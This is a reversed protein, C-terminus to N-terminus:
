AERRTIGRRALGAVIRDVAADVEKEELTRDAARFTLSFGLGVHGSPIHKGRYHDFLELSVLSPGGEDRVWGRVEDQTVGMPVVLALDRRVAPFRSPERYRRPVGTDPPLADLALQAVYVPRSLDWRAATESGVEWALGAPQDGAVIELAGPPVLELGDYSRWKPGDIEFAALLGEVFGKFEVFNLSRQARELSPAFTGGSAALGVWLSERPREGDATHRFVKGLEFVRVQPRGHRLNHSVVGLLGPTLSVRLGEQEKSPPDLVPFFARDAGEAPLGARAAAGRDALATTRVEHFGFGRLVESVRRRREEEPQVPATVASANYQRTGIADYGRHRAVEEVLDCEEFIDRRWPPAAVEWPAGREAPRVEFGFARLRDAIEGDGVTEGLTEGVKAPRFSVVRPALIEPALVESMGPAVTGGAVEALLAAARKAARAVNEPDIGRRFRIAAETDLRLKRSGRLVREPKFYASELVIDTTGAHVETNAGGMVGAVAIPRQGDTILLVEPDLARDVGDLTTIREGERARRVLIRGTGLRELDFAHLPQGMEQLVFNTVDVVNNISRQGVAELREVLWAPSPGVTVGRIVHATFRPCDEANEVATAFSEAAPAGGERLRIDPRRLAAATLAAVERAVGIHSLCDGRNSAIDIDLVVDGAGLVLRLPTGPEAPERLEIIGSADEGLGLEIESCLMGESVEGRIKSKKITLGNPLKAGVRALPSYMGDHVNPAGCVVNVPEGDGADVRCLSLKDANPHKRVELVRAVVVEDPLVVPREVRDVPLGALTLRRALGDPDEDLDVYDRIWNLSFRV